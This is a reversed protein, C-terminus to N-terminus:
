RPKWYVVRERAQDRAALGNHRTLDSDRMRSLSCSDCEPILGRVPRGCTSCRRDTM